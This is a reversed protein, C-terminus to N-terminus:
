DHDHTLSKIIFSGAKGVGKAVEGATELHDLTRDQKQTQKVVVTKQENIIIVQPQNSGNADANAKLVASVDEGNKVARRLKDELSTKGTVDKLSTEDPVKQSARYGNYLPIAIGIAAGVAVGTLVVHSPKVGAVANARATAIEAASPYHTPVRIFTDFISRLTGPTIAREAANAASEKIGPLRVFQIGGGVLPAALLSAKNLASNVTRGFGQSFSNDQDQIERITGQKQEGKENVFQLTDGVKSEKFNAEKGYLVYNDEASSVFVKDFGDHATQKAADSLNVTLKGVKELGFPLGSPLGSNVVNFDSM